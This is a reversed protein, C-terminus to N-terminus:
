SRFRQVAAATFPPEASDKGIAEMAGAREARDEGPTERDRPWSRGIGASSTLSGHWSFYYQSALAELLELALDLEQAGYFPPLDGLADLLRALEAVDALVGLVVM